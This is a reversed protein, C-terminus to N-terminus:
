CGSIWFIGHLILLRRNMLFMSALDKPFELLREDATLCVDLVHIPYDPVYDRLEHPIESFDLLDHLRKAANWPDEGM